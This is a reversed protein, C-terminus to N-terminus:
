LTAKYRIGTHSEKHVQKKHRTGRIIAYSETLVRQVKPVNEKRSHGASATLKQQENTPKPSNKKGVTCHNEKSVKTSKTRNNFSEVKLGERGPNYERRQPDSGNRLLKEM